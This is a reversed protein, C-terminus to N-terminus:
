ISLGAYIATVRFAQATLPDNWVRQYSDLGTFHVSGKLRANTFSIVFAAVLPYWGWSLQFLVAPFLFLWSELRRRRSLRPVTATTDDQRYGPVARAEEVQSIAM